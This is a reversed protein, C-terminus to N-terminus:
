QPKGGGAAPKMQEITRTGDATPRGLTFGIRDGPKITSLDISRTVPFDMTMSPWGLSKIPEHTVNVSHKSPDVANVTGTASAQRGGAQAMQTGPATIGHGMAAHDMGAMNGGTMARMNTSPVSTAPSTVAVLLNAPRVFPVSAADPNAPNSLALTTSAAQTSCGACAVGLATLFGLQVLM